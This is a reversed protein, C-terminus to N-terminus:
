PKASLPTTLKGESCRISLTRPILDHPAPGADGAFREVAIVLRSKARLTPTTFRWTDDLILTVDTWVADSDNEVSLQTGMLGQALQVDAGLSNTHGSGPCAAWLSAVALLAWAGVVVARMRVYRTSRRYGDALDTAVDKALDRAFDKVRLAAALPDTRPAEKM